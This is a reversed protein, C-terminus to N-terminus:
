AAGGEIERSACAGDGSFMMQHACPEVFGAQASDQLRNTKTQAAGQGHPRKRKHM